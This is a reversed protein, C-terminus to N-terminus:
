KLNIKELTGTLKGFRLKAEIRVPIRLNDDTLWIRHGHSTELAITRKPGIKTKLTERKSVNLTVHQPKGRVFLPFQYQKGVELKKTRVFFIMSLEDQIGVSASFDDHKKNKVYYVKGNKQDFNVEVNARYDRDELYKTHRIPFLKDTTIYSEKHDLFHYLRGFLGGTQSESRVHFVKQDNLRTEKDIAIIQKGAVLGAFKAKYILEEGVRISTFNESELLSTTEAAVMSICLFLFVELTSTLNNTM